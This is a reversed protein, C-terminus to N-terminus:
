AHLATLVKALISNEGNAKYDAILFNVAIRGLENASTEVGQRDYMYGIDGLQNKEEKTVRVYLVEEKAPTKVIKRIIEIIDPKIALTSAHKSADISDQLSTQNSTQLHVPNIGQQNVEKDTQQNAPLSAFEKNETPEGSQEPVPQGAKSPFFVSQGRLENMVGSTDLRKKM